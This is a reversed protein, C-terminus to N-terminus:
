EVFHDLVQKHGLRRPGNYHDIIVNRIGCDRTDLWDHNEGDFWITQSLIQPTFAPLLYGSEYEGRQRRPVADGEAKTDWLFLKM